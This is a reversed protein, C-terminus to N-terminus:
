RGSERDQAARALRLAIDRFADGRAEFNKFQDYSACAPSLLVAPASSAGALADALARPTATALDGCLEHSVGAARLTAAFEDSAEGVLYAKRVRPFFEALPAIGGEKPRGGLIWHADDYSALAKAASDANTAKSDNVLIAKGVRAVEEMRHPLGPFDALGAAIREPAVGLRRAAACAFTANQSNHAGRLARAGELSAIRTERGGERVYVARGRVFVDASPDDFGSVRLTPKGAAARRAAMARTPADDVGVI